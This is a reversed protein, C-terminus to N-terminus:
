PASGFGQGIWKIKSQIQPVCVEHQMPYSEFQVKFGAAKLAEFSGQGLEFNVVPDATGHQILYPTSGNTYESAAKIDEPKFLYTSMALVGALKHKLRLSTELVIAGGQSFGALVMHEYPIGKAHEAELLSTIQAVSQEVQSHDVQRQPHFGLIDYWSPMAYGQNITVPRTPAQPFIGKLPADMQSSYQPLLPYFDHFSAGLGHLVVILRADSVPAIKQGKQAYDELTELAAVSM